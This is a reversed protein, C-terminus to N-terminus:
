RLQLLRRHLSQRCSLRHQADSRMRQRPQQEIRLSPLVWHEDHRIQLPPVLAFRRLRRADFLRHLLQPPPLHVRGHLRRAHWRARVLVLGIPQSHLRKGGVGSGHPVLRSPQASRMSWRRVSGDLEHLREHHRLARRDAHMRWADHRVCIRRWM